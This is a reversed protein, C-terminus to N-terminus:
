ASKEELRMLRTEIEEIKAKLQENDRELEFQKEHTLKYGDFLVEIRKTVENEIKVELKKFRTEISQEMKALREDIKTNQENLLDAIQSILAQEDM